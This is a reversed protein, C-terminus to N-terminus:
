THSLPWREYNGNCCPFRDRHIFRAEPVGGLAEREHDGPDRRTECVGELAVICSYRILRRLDAQKDKAASPRRRM